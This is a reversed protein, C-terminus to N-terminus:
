KRRKRRIEGEKKALERATQKGEASALRWGGGRDGCGHGHGRAGLLEGGKKHDPGDGHEAHHSTAKITRAKPNLHMHAHM